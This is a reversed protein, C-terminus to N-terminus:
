VTVTAFANPEAVLLAAVSVPLLAGGAIVACGCFTVTVLPCGAVSDTVAVPM